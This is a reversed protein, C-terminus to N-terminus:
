SFNMFNFCVRCLYMKDPDPYKDSGKQGCIRDEVLKEMDLGCETESTRNRWLHYLGDNFKYIHMFM